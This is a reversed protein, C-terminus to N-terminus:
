LTHQNTRQCLGMYTYASLTVARYITEITALIYALCRTLRLNKLSGWEDDFTVFFREGFNEVSHVLRVTWCVTPSQTSFTSADTIRAKASRRVHRDRSQQIVVPALCVSTDDPFQKFVVSGYLVADTDQCWQFVAHHAVNSTASYASTQVCGTFLGTSYPFLVDDVSLLGYLTKSRTSLSRLCSLDFHTAYCWYLYTTQCAAAATVVSAFAKFDTSYTESSTLQWRATREKDM